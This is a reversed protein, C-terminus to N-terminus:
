SHEHGERYSRDLRVQRRTSRVARLITQSAANVESVADSAQPTM